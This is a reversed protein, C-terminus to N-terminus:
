VPMPAVVGRAVLAARLRLLGTYTAMTVVTGGAPTDHVLADLAALPEDYTPPLRDAADGPEDLEYKLRLRFDKSRSGSIASRLRTVLPAPNVDWYWSVDQGDQYGDNMVFMVADIDSAAAIRVLEGLSAPNKGLTLIVRRGELEFTEYRGWANGAAALAALAAALPVGMATAACVAAAANYANSVGPLALEIDTAQGETPASFRLAQGSFGHSAVIEVSLWPEPRRLGCGACAWGGLHGITRWGYDLPRGCNPCVESDATLGIDLGAPGPGALGFLRRPGPAATAIAALRPDDAPAVVTTSPLSQLARRWRREIEDIEGYRDLQDRFLNTAVIVGPPVEAALRPLAFEDCELVAARPGSSATRTAAALLSTTISQGLNAGSRNTIAPRANASLLQSLLHTTTTKGNTGTVFALADLRAALRGGIGPALREALMGPLSSGGHGLRRSVLASGRGLAV